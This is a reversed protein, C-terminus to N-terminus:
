NRRLSHVRPFPPHCIPSLCQWHSILHAALIVMCIKQRDFLGGCKRLGPSVSCAGISVALAQRGLHITHSQVRPGGGEGEFM